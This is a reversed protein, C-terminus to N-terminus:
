EDDIGPFKVNIMQTRLQEHEEVFTIVSKDPTFEIAKAQEELLNHDASSTFTLHAEIGQCIKNPTEKFLIPNIKSRVQGPLSKM